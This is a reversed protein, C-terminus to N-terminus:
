IHLVALNHGRLVCCDTFPSPNDPYNDLDERTAVVVAQLTSPAKVEYYRLEEGKTTIVTYNHLM